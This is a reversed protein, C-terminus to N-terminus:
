IAVPSKVMCSVIAMFLLAIVHALSIVKHSSTERNLFAIWILCILLQRRKSIGISGGEGMDISKVLKM